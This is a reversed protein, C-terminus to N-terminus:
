RRRVLEPMRATPSSGSGDTGHAPAAPRPPASAAHNQRPLQVDLYEVQARRGLAGRLVDALSPATKRAPTIAPVPAAEDADPEPLTVPQPVLLSVNQETVGVAYAEGGIRILAVSATKGVKAQALVAVPREARRASVLASRDHRRLFWLTGGLLAFVLVMKLLTLV